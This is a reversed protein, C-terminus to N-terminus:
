VIGTLASAKRARALYLFWSTPCSNERKSAVKSRLFLLCFFMLKGRAVSTKDDSVVIPTVGPTERHRLSRLLADNLALREHLVM